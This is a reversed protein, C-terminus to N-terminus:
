RRYVETTKEFEEDDYQVGKIYKITTDYFKPKFKIKTDLYFCHDLEPFKIPIFLRYTAAFTKCQRMAKREKSVCQQSYDLEDSTLTKIVVKDQYQQFKPNALFQKKSKEDTLLHIYINYKFHHLYNLNYFFEDVYKPTYDLAFILHYDSHMRLLTLFLNTSKVSLWYLREILSSSFIESNKSPM